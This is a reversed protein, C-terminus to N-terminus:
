FYVDLVRGEASYWSQRRSGLEVECWGSGSAALAFCLGLASGSVPALTWSAKSPPASFSPVHVIASDEEGKWGSSPGEDPPAAGEVPLAVWSDPVICRWPPGWPGQPERARIVLEKGVVDSWVATALRVEDEGDTAWEGISWGDAWVGVLVEQSGGARASVKLEPGLDWVADLVAPGWAWARGQEDDSWMGSLSAADRRLERAMSVLSEMSSSLPVILFGAILAAVM